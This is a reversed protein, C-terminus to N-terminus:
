GGFLYELVSDIDTLDKVLADAGAKTLRNKKWEDWGTCPNEEYGARGIAIGGVEKVNEIEVYGDGFCAISSGSLGHDQLISRIVGAKSNLRPDRKAGFINGKFYSDVKLLSAEELVYEHDTGSALYLIIKRETLHELLRRAGPVMMQDADAEGKQLAERRHRIHLMLRRNYEEKYQYPDVSEGGRKVVEDNIQMCQYITQKGTTLEVFERACRYEEEYTGGKPTKTLVEAFYPIMVNQWGQRILSITGDFDFLVSRIDKNEYRNIIIM